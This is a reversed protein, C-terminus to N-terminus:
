GLAAATRYAIEAAAHRGQEKRMHGQQVWYGSQYPYLALAAGYAQEAERWAGADRHADAEAVLAIFRPDRAAASDSASPLAPRPCLSLAELASRSSAAAPEADPLATEGPTRLPDPRKAKHALEAVADGLVRAPHPKILSANRYAAPRTFTM